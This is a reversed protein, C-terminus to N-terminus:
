KFRISLFSHPNIAKAYVRGSYRPIPSPLITIFSSVRLIVSRPSLPAHKTTLPFAAEIDMSRDHPYLSASEPLSYEYM